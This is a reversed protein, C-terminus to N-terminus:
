SATLGQGKRKTIALVFIMITIITMVPLVPLIYRYICWSSYIMLAYFMAVFVIPILLMVREKTNLSKRRLLYVVGVLAIAFLVLRRPYWKEYVPNITERFVDKRCQIDGEQVNYYMKSADSLYTHLYYDGMEGIHPMLMTRANPLLYGMLFEYPYERQIYLGYKELKPAVVFMEMFRPVPNMVTWLSDNAIQALPFLPGNPNWLHETNIAIIPNSVTDTYTMFRHHLERLEPDKIYKPATNIRPLAYMVNNAQTWGSFCSHIPVGFAKDNMNVNRNYSYKFTYLLLLIGLAKMVFSRTAFLLVFVSFLPYILSIFRIELCCYLALAHLLLYLIKRESVYHLLTALYFFTLTAFPLDSYITNAFYLGTPEALMLFGIIIYLLKHISFVIRFVELLSLLSLFYAIFQLWVVTNPSSSYGHVWSLFASYGAPRIGVDGTRAHHVYYDTDWTIVPYPYYYKVFWVLLLFLGFLIYRHYNNSLHQKM